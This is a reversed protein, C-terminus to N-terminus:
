EPGGATRAQPARAGGVLLAGPPSYRPRPPRPFQHARAAAARTRAAYFSLTLLVGLPVLFAREELLNHSFLGEITVLAVFVMGNRHRRTYFLYGAAALTWLYAVLGFLGSNIWQQLYINHPGERMRKYTFGGGMGIIPSERVLQLSENLAAVRPERTPVVKQRGLLIGVRSTSFSSSFMELRGTLVRAAGVTSAILVVIVLARGLARVPQDRLQVVACYGYCLVVFGLALAGGRSFTGLVGLATAPLVVLDIPRVREFSIFSACLAVLLFAGANPNGIFGAARQPMVSYTGPHITDILVSGLAVVFGVLLYRGFRRRHEPYPLLMSLLVIMADYAPYRVYRPGDEWYATPVFGSVFSAVVVGTLGIVVGRHAAFLAIVEKRVAQSGAVRVFTWATVGVLALLFVQTSPYPLRGRDYLYSDYYSLFVASFSSMVLASPISRLLSLRM